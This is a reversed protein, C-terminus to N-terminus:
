GDFRSDLITQGLEGAHRENWRNRYSSTRVCRLGCRFARAGGPWRRVKWGQAELLAAATEITWGAELPKAEVASDGPEWGALWTRKVQTGGPLEILDVRCVKGTFGKIEAMKNFRFDVGTTNKAPDHREEWDEYPDPLDELLWANKDETPAHKRNRTAANM